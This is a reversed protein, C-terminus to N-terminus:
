FRFEPIVQNLLGARLTDLNVKARWAFSSFKIILFRTITSTMRVTLRTVAEHLFSPGRGGNGNPAKGKCFTLNRSAMGFSYPVNTPTVCFGAAAEHAPSHNWFGSPVTVTTKTSM